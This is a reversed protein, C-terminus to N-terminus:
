PMERGIEAAARVIAYKYDEEMEDAFYDGDKGVLVLGHHFVMGIKLRVALRLADGDDTLPNWLQWDATERCIDGDPGGFKIPIGAARAAMELLEKDNM